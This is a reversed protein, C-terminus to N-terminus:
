KDKNLWKEAEEKTFVIEDLSHVCCVNGFYYSEKKDTTTVYIKKIGERNTVIEEVVCEKVFREGSLEQCYYVISGVKCIDKEYHAKDKFHNCVDTGNLCAKVFGQTLNKAKSILTICVEYHECNECKSM